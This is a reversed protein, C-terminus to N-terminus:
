NLRQRLQQIRLERADYYGEEDFVVAEHLLRVTDDPVETRLAEIRKRVGPDRLAKDVNAQAAGPNFPRDKELRRGATTERGAVKGMVTRFSACENGGGKAPDQGSQASARIEAARSLDMLGRCQAEAAHVPAALAVVLLFSTLLRMWAEKKLPLILWLGIAVLALWALRKTFLLFAASRAGSADLRYTDRADVWFYRWARCWLSTSDGTVHDPATWAAPAGVRAERLSEVFAHISMGVVLPVPSLWLGWRLLHFSVYAFVATFGLTTAGLFSLWLVAHERRVLSPGLVDSFYSRWLLSLVAGVVCAVVVDLLASALETMTRAPTGISLYAGAHVEVGYLEGVPTVHTDSEGWGGGFFVVGRRDESTLRPSKLAWKLRDEFAPANPVDIPVVVINALYLSPDIFSGEPEPANLCSSMPRSSPTPFAAVYAVAALSDHACRHKITVGWDTSMTAKGFKVHGSAMREQWRESAKRAPDTTMPFPSMLVTTIKPENTWGDILLKEILRQFECEQREASDRQRCQEAAEPTGETTEEAPDLPLVPSLDVDVVVVSPKQEYITKLHQHLVRRRLPSRERYDAEFSRPDISVVVVKPSVAGQLPSGLFHSIVFFAYTDVPDLAHLSHAITVIATVAFIARWSHRFYAWPSLSALLNPSSLAPNM